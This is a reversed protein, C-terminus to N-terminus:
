QCQESKSNIINNVGFNQRSLPPQGKFKLTKELWTKTRIERGKSSAKKSLFSMRSGSSSDQEDKNVVFKTIKCIKYSPSTWTKYSNVQLQQSRTNM